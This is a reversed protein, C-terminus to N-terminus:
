LAANGSPRTWFQSCNEFVNRYSMGFFDTMTTQCKKGKRVYWCESQMRKTIIGCTFFFDVLLKSEQKKLKPVLNIGM